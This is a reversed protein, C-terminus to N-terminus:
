SVFHSRSVNEVFPTILEYCQSGGNDHPHALINSNSLNVCILLPQHAVSQRASGEMLHEGGAVRM